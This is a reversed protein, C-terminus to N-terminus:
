AGNGQDKKAIDMEQMVEELAQYFALSIESEKDNSLTHQTKHLNMIRQTAGGLASLVKIGLSLDDIDQALELVRRMLIRLMRIEDELSVSEVKSLYVKEIAKFLDGYFGNPPPLQQEPNKPSSDPM